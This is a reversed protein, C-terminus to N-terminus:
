KTATSTNAGNTETAGDIARTDNNRRANEQEKQRYRDLTESVKGQVAIIGDANVQKKLNKGGFFGGWVMPSVIDQIKKWNIEGDKLFQGMFNGTELEIEQLLSLLEAKEAQLKKREEILNELKNKEVKIIKSM